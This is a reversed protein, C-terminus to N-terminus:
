AINLKILKEYLEISAVVDRACYLSIEDIKWNNYFEQVQSGDIWDKPTTIWLNKCAADLSVAKWLWKYIEQLDVFHNLEWHKRWNTKLIHPIPIWYNLGRRIVFPIDFNKINFGSITTHNKILDYFKIIMDKETMDEQELLNTVVKWWEPLIEIISICIIKNFEPLFNLSDWYKKELKDIDEKQLNMSEHIWIIKKEKNFKAVPKLISVTEIDFFFMKAM